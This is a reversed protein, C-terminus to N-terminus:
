WNEITIGKLIGAIAPTEVPLWTIGDHSMFIKENGNSDNGAAVFVNSANSYSISTLSATLVGRDTWNLGEPSTFVHGSQTTSVFMSNGYTIASWDVPYRDERMTWDTGNDSQYILGADGGQGVGVFEGNGFAVSLVMDGEFTLNSSQWNTVNPDKTFYIHESGFAVFENNGFAISYLSQDQTSFNIKWNQGNDQSTVIRSGNENGSSAIAAFLNNGYAVGNLNFGSIESPVNAHNWTSGSGDHSYEVDGQNGVAVFANSDTGSNAVANLQPGAGSTLPANLWNSEANHSDLVADNGASSGVAVTAIDFVSINIPSTVVLSGVRNGSSKTAPTTTTLAFGTKSFVCLLPLLCLSLHKRYFM